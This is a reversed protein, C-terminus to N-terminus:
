ESIIVLFVAMLVSVLALLLSLVLSMIWTAPLDPEGRRFRLFFPNHMAPSILNVGVGLGIFSIGFWLSQNAGRHTRPHSELLEQLFLGFRAVVFGFGMLAMGTRVWSLLTMELGLRLRSDIAAPSEEAPANKEQSPETVAGGEGFFQVGRLPHNYQNGDFTRKRVLGKEGHTGKRVPELAPVCM